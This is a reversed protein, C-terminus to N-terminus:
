GAKPASTPQKMMGCEKGTGLRDFRACDVGHSASIRMTRGEGGAFRTLLMETAVEGWAVRNVRVTTLAPHCDRADAGDYFGAISLDDPVHLGRRQCLQVGAAAMGDIAYLIATPRDPRDLLVETLAEAVPATFGAYGNRAVILTPDAPIGAETLAALYGARKEFSTYTEAPGNVLAIRRHGLAILHRTVAAMGGASDAAVSSLGADPVHGGIMVVPLGRARIAALVRPDVVGGNMIVGSVAAFFPASAETPLLGSQQWLYPIYGAQLSAIEVGVMVEEITAELSSLYPGEVFHSLTVGIMPRGTTGVTGQAVSRATLEDVAARVAQKTLASVRDSDGLARSVTSVSVGVRDAVERLSPVEGSKM